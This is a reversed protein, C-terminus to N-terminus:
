FDGTKAKKWMMISEKEVLESCEKKAASFHHIRRDLSSITRIIYKKHL